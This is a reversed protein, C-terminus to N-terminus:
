KMIKQVGNEQTLKTSQNNFNMRKKSERNMKNRVLLLKGRGGVSRVKGKKRDCAQLFQKRNQNNRLEM